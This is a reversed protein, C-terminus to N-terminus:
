KNARNNEVYYKILDNYNVSYKHNNICVVVFQLGFVLRTDLGLRTNCKNYLYSDLVNVFLDTAQIKM